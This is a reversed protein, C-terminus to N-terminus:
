APHVLPRDLFVVRWDLVEDVMLQSARVALPELQASTLPGAPAALAELAAHISSLQQVMAASRKAVRAFEGQNSIGALAAGLAPFWACTLTLWGAGGPPWHLLHLVISVVTLGLFWLGTTHLRHALREMRHHNKKHYAIQGAVAAAVHARCHELHAPDLRAQPLGVARSIARVHWLMWTDGPDYNHLHGSPRMQPPGGGLPLLLRLQRLLEAVIRYEVWRDHWRGRQGQWVIALIAFIVVLESVVFVTEWRSPLGQIGLGVPLLAFGVALAGLFYALVFASRYAGAYCNSLGDPWAFFRRM